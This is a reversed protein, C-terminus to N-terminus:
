TVNAVLQSAIPLQSGKVFPSYMGQRLIITIQVCLLQAGVGLEDTFRVHIWIERLRSGLADHPAHRMIDVGHGPSTGAQSLSPPFRLLNM